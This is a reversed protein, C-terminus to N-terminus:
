SSLPEDAEAATEFIVDRVRGPRQGLSRRKFRVREVGAALDLEELREISAAQIEGPRADEEDVTRAVAAAAQDWDDEIFERAALRGARGEAAEPAVVDVDVIEGTLQHPDRQRVRASRDVAPGALCRGQR